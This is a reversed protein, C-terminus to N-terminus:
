ALAACWALCLGSQRLMATRPHSCPRAARLRLQLERQPLLLQRADLGHAEQVRSVRGDAAAACQVALQLSLQVALQMALQVATQVDLQMALACTPQGPLKEHYRGNEMNETADKETQSRTSGYQSKSEMRM